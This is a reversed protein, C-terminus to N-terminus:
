EASIAFLYILAGTIGTVLIPEIFPNEGKEIEQPEIQTIREDSLKSVVKTPVENEYEGWVEGAWAMESSDNYIRIHVVSRGVRIIRGRRAKKNVVQSEILRYKIEYGESEEDTNPFTSIGNTSLKENLIDEFRYFLYDYDTEDEDLNTILYPSNDQSIFPLDILKTAAEDMSKSLLEGDTLYENPLEFDTGCGALIASGLLIMSSLLATRKITNKSV